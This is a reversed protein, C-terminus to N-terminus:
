KGERIRTLIECFAERPLYTTPSDPTGTDHILTFGKTALLAIMAGTNQAFKARIAREILFLHEFSRYPIEVDNHWVSFNKAQEGFKKATSGFSLFAVERDPHEPPLKIGQVFGEVSAFLKGDLYFPFAPFNSLCFERFDKSKSTINLIKDV